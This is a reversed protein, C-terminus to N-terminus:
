NREMKDAQEYVTPGCVGDVPTVITKRGDKTIIVLQAVGNKVAVSYHKGSRQRLSLIINQIEQVRSM